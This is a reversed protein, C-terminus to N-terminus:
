KTVTGIAEDTRPVFLTVRTGGAERPEIELASGCMAKLRQRINNLAPEDKRL